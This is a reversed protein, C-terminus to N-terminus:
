FRASPTPSCCSTRPAYRTRRPTITAAGAMRARAPLLSTTIDTPLTSSFLLKSGLLTTLNSQLDLVEAARAAAILSAKAAGNMQADDDVGPTECGCGTGVCWEDVPLVSKISYAGSYTLSPVPTIRSMFFDAIHALLPWGRQQLWTVNRTAQFYQWASFAIDGTVHQELCDEYGGKGDCCGFPRGGYAATWAHMSGKYGFVHAIDFSANLSVYRYELLASALKPSLLYLAPEMWWDMDM